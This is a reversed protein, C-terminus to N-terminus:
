RPIAGIQACFAAIAFDDMEVRWRIQLVKAAVNLDIVQFQPALHPSLLMM